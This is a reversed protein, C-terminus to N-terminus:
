TLVPFMLPAFPDFLASKGSLAQLRQVDHLTKSWDLLPPLRRWCSNGGDGRPRNLWARSELPLSDWWTMLRAVRRTGPSFEEGSTGPTPMMDGIFSPMTLM